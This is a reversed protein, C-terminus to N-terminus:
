HNLKNNLLINLSSIIKKRSYKEEALKRGRFGMANLEEISMRSLKIIKEALLNPNNPPIGYGLNNENIESNIYGPITAIVARGSAYADYLKNPSVGYEFMPIDALSVLIVDALEYIKPMFEKAVPEKFTLNKLGKSLKVLTKKETGDGILTIHINNEKKTELIRAAEIINTLGNAVGFAGPYLINFNDRPNKNKIKQFNFLKLNPGNPLWCIDKRTYKKVYEISGKSLVIISDSNKYLQIEMNKLFKIYLDNKNKGGLEILVQPWIDRVEFIFPIKYLKSILLCCWAAPLQPSSALIISKKNVDRSFSLKSILYFSTNLCFLIINLYRLFNNKKYPSTYLWTWKVGEIIKSKILQFPKLFTYKRSFINFDSCLIEIDWDLKNLGIGIEYQRTHGSFYPLNASQNILYLKARKQNKM